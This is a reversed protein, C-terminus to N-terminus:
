KGFLKFPCFLENLKAPVFQGFSVLFDLFDEFFLSPATRMQASIDYQETHQRKITVSIFVHWLKIDESCDSVQAFLRM